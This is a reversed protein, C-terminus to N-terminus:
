RTLRCTRPANVLNCRMTGGGTLHSVFAALQPGIAADAADRLIPDVGQSCGNHTGPVQLQNLRIDADAPRARDGALAATACGIALGLGIVTKNM